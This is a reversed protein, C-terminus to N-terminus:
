HIIEDEDQLEKVAEAIQQEEDATLNVPNRDSALEKGVLVGNTFVSYLIELSAEDEPEIRLRDLVKRFKKIIKSRFM